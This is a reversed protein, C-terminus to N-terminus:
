ELVFVSGADVIYLQKETPLFQMYHYTSSFSSPLNVFFEREHQKKHIDHLSFFSIAYETAQAVVYDNWVCWNDWQHSIRSVNMVKFCPSSSSLSSKSTWRLNKEEGCSFIILDKWLFVSTIIGETFKFTIIKDTDQTELPIIQVQRECPTILIKWNQPQFCHDLEWRRILKDNFSHAWGAHNLGRPFSKKDVNLPNTVCCWSGLYGVFVDKEFYLLCSLNEKRSFIVRISFDVHQLILDCLTTALPINKLFSVISDKQKTEM